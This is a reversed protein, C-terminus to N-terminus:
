PDPVIVVPVRLIDELIKDIGPILAGGGSIHIGNEMIDSLIEPPTEEIVGQVGEM